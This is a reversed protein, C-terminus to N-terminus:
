RFYAEAKNEEKYIKILEIVYNPQQLLMNIEDESYKTEQKGHKVVKKVHTTVTETSLTKIQLGEFLPHSYLKQELTEELQKIKIKIVQVFRKISSDNFSVDTENNPILEDVQMKISLIEAINMNDRANSLATMLKSKKDRLVEDQERDPHILKALNKFLKNIDTSLLKEAEALKKEKELQAKTKKRERKGGGFFDEFDNQNQNYKEFFDKFKEHHQQKEEDSAFTKKNLEDLDVDFGYQKKILKEAKRKEQLRYNKEEPTEIQLFISYAFDRDSQLFNSSEDLILTRLLEKQNSGLKVKGKLYIKLLVELKNKELQKQKNLEPVVENIYAKNAIDLYSEVEKVRNNAERHKNLADNFDKQAKTYNTTIGKWVLKDQYEKELEPFLETTNM